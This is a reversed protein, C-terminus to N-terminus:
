LKFIRFNPTSYLATSIERGSDQPGQLRHKSVRPNGEHQERERSNRARQEWRYENQSVVEETFCKGM